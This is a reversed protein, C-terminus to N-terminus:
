LMEGHYLSECVTTSKGTHWEGNFTKASTEISLVEEFRVRMMLVGPPLNLYKCMLFGPFPGRHPSQPIVRGPTLEEGSEATQM